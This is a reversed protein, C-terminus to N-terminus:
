VPTAQSSPESHVAPSAHEEPAHKPKAMPQSSPLAQVASLQRAAV